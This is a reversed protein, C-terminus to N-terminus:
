LHMSLSQFWNQLYPSAMVSATRFVPMWLITSSRTLYEIAACTSRPPTEKEQQKHTYTTAMLSKLYVQSVGKWKLPDKLKPLIASFTMYLRSFPQPVIWLCCRKIFTLGLIIERTGL